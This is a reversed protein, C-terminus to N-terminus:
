DNSLQRRYEGPSVGSIRRFSRAFHSPDSYGTAQAIDLIKLSLDSLMEAAVEFRAQQVLSSYNLGYQELKRQLTRVSTDAVEAALNIDPYNEQFYSRLALKLSGPFDQKTGSPYKLMSLKEFYQKQNKQEGPLSRSMLLVPVTISTNKQGFLFRTNPFKEFAGDSPSFQSQFTIEAPSWNYGLTKRVIDILVSVQLWESYHVGELGPYGVLNDCIRYDDGERIFSVRCNSNELPALQSFLQFRSHLSPINQCMEIFEGSLRGFSVQQSALFGIDDIGEKQEMRQIFKLVPLVPIYADPQHELMAPLGVKNLERELPSGIAQLVETFSLVHTIRAIMIPQM